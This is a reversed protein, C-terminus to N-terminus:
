QDVAVALSPRRECRAGPFPNHLSTSTMGDKKSCTYILTVVCDIFVHPPSFMCFCRILAIVTTAVSALPPQAVMM